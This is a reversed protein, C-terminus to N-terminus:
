YIFWEGSENEPLLMKSDWM